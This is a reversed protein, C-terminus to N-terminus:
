FDYSGPHVTVVCWQEIAADDEATYVLDVVAAGKKSADYEVCRAASAESFKPHAPGLEGRYTPM